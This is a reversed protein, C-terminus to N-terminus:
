AVTRLMKSIRGLQQQHHLVHDLLFDLTQQITLMGVRPHKFIARNVLQDPFENLLNELQRRSAMWQARMDALAPLDTAAAPTLAAVRGPAKFKIGPLRLLLRLLGARLRMGLTGNTLQSQERLKQQLYQGIAAESSLLHHVVHAASWQGPAPAQYAQEGLSEAARLLKETAHELQEFRLHLRHNM